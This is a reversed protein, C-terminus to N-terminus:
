RRAFNAHYTISGTSGACTHQVRVYRNVTGSATSRESTVTTSGVVSFTILDAWTSNDASHQVKFTTNGNRTNATVHLTAAGGNSTSASNDQATGNGTATVAALDCLSIGRDIRDTTQGEFSTAVVDAVPSSVEYSTGISTM